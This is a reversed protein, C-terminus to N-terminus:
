GDPTRGPEPPAPSGREPRPAHGALDGLVEALAAVGAHCDAAEAHEQPAHSVGTPNRVFLMAAPLQASLVGADHGAGTPLSPVPRGSGRIMIMNALRNALGEDFRVTQSYSELTLAARVGHQGAAREAAEKIADVTRRVALDDPGRADLWGTVESPVVNVGGPRVRVKGVTALTGYEAAIERARLATQAFVLMPDRRDHLHTTGAHDAQGTFDFRWRGHPRIATAVGVPADLDDLFRGQEIHLEVFCGIRGLLDDDRGIAEPDLDHAALTEAFTVGDADRLARARDPELV